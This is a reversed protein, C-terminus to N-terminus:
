GNMEMLRQFPGGPQPHAAATPAADLMALCQDAPFDTQFALHRALEERGKAEPCNLIARMRIRETAVADAQMRALEAAQKQANDAMFEARGEERARMLAEQEDDADPMVTESELRQRNSSLM